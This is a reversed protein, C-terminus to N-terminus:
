IPNKISYPSYVIFLLFQLGLYFLSQCALELTNLILGSLNHVLTCISNGAIFQKTAKSFDHCILSTGCSSLHTCKMKIKLLPVSLIWSIISLKVWVQLNLLLNNLISYNKLMWFHINLDNTVLLHLTLVLKSVSM